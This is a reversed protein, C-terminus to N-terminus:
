KVSFQVLDLADLRFLVNCVNMENLIQIQSPDLILDFISM